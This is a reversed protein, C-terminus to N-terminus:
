FGEGRKSEWRGVVEGFMESGNGGVIWGFGSVGSRETRENDLMNRLVKGGVMKGLWDVSGTISGTVVFYSCYRYGLSIM